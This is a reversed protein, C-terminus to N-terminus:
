YVFVPIQHSEISFFLLKCHLHHSVKKKKWELFSEFTVRTVNPGLACRETEILDEISIEEEDEAQKKKQSPLVYGAINPSIFDRKSNM